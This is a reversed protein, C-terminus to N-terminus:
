CHDQTLSPPSQSMTFLTDPRGSVNHGLQQAVTHRCPRPSMTKVTGTVHNETFADVQSNPRFAAITTEPLLSLSCRLACSIFRCSVPTVTVTVRWPRVAGGGMRGWVVSYFWSPFSCWWGPHKYDSAAMCDRRDTHSNYRITYQVAIQNLEACISYAFSM